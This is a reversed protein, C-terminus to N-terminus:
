GAKVRQFGTELSFAIQFLRGGLGKSRESEQEQVGARDEAL